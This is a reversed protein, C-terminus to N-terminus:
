KPEEKGAKRAEVAAALSPHWELTDADPDFVDNDIAVKFGFIVRTINVERREVIEMIRKHFFRLHDENSDDFWVPDPNAEWEEGDAPPYHPYYGKEMEALIRDLEFCAEFDAESAKAM